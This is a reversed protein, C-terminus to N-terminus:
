SGIKTKYRDLHDYNRIMFMDYLIGTKKRILACTHKVVRVSVDKGLLRPVIAFNSGQMNKDYM